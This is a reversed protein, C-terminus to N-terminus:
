KFVNAVGLFGGAERATVRSKGQILCTDRSSHCRASETLRNFGGLQIAFREGLYIEFVLRQFTMSADDTEDKLLGGELIAAVHDGFYGYAASGGLLTLAKKELKPADGSTSEYDLPLFPLQTGAAAFAFVLRHWRSQFSSLVDWGIALDVTYRAAMMDTRAGPLIAEQTLTAKHEHYTGQAGVVLGAIPNTWVGAGAGSVQAEDALDVELKQLELSERAAFGFVQVMHMRPRAVAPAEVVPEAPAAEVPAPTEAPADAPAAVVPAREPTPPPPPPTGPDLALTPNYHYHRFLRQSGSYPVVEIMLAKDSSPVVFSPSTSIMTRAKGEGDVVYLKYRDAGAEAQWTLRAPRERPAGPDIAAFSGSVFTIVANGEGGTGPRALRWHYVGEGPADWSYSTGAAAKMDGSHVIEGFGPDKAVELVYTENQALPVQWAIVVPLAAAVGSHSLAWAAWAKAVFAGLQRRFHSKEPRTARATAKYKKLVKPIKPVGSSADVPM